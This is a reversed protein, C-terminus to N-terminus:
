ELEEKTLAWTKGYDKFYWKTGNPLAKMEFCKTELRMELYYEGGKVFGRFGDEHKIHFGNFYAKLLIRLDIGLEKEIRRIEFMKEKYISMWHRVDEAYKCLVELEDNNEINYKELIDELQGLKNAVSKHPENLSIFNSYIYDIGVKDTLRM